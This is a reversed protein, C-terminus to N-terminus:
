TSCPKKKRKKFRAKDRAFRYSASFHDLRTSCLQSPDTVEVPTFIYSM